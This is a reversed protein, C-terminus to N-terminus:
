KKPAGGQPSGLAGGPTGGGAPAPGGAASGSNQAQSKIHAKLEDLSLKGDKNGDVTPPHKKSALSEKTVYGKKDTEFMAFISEPLGTAKWEELTIKDDKSTDVATFFPTVDLTVGSDSSGGQGQPAGGGQPAQQQALASTSLITSLAVTLFIKSVSM